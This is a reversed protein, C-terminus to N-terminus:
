INPENNPFVNLEEGPVIYFGQILIKFGTATYEIDTGKRLYQSVQSSYVPYDLLGNLRSDTYTFVGNGDVTIGASNSFVKFPALVVKIVPQPIQAVTPPVHQSIAPGGNEIIQYFVSSLGNARTSYLVNNITTTLFVSDDKVLADDYLFQQGTYPYTNLNPFSNDQLLKILYDYSGYTNLCVDYISQGNRASYQQIM